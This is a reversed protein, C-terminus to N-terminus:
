RKSYVLIDQYSADEDGARWAGPLTRELTLGGQSAWEDLIAAEFGIANEPVESHNTWTKSDLRHFRPEGSSVEREKESDPDILFATMLLRSGSRLVRGLERLYHEAHTARLHTFVSTAFAFSVAGSPIPLSMQTVDMRGRPNYLDNRAPVHLFEFRRDHKQINKQCWRILGKDVDIGFYRGASSLFQQLPIAMRGTGSGLDLVADEEALRGYDIFYDLFELGVEAGGGVRRVFKKPPLLMGHGVSWTRGTGREFVPRMLVLIARATAGAELTLALRFRCRGAGDSKPFAEAVDPSAEIELSPVRATGPPAVSKLAGADRSFVWGTVLIRDGHVTVSELHRRCWVPEDTRSSMSVDDPLLASDRIITGSPVGGEM